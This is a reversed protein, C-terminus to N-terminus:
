KFFDAFAEHDFLEEPKVIRVDRTAPPPQHLPASPQRRWGAYGAREVQRSVWLEHMIEHLREVSAGPVFARLEDPGYGRHPEMRELILRADESLAHM